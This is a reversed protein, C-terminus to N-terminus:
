VFKGARFYNHGRRAQFDLNLPARRRRVKDGPFNTRRDCVPAVGMRMAEHFML